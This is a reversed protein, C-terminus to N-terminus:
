SGFERGSRLLPLVLCLMKTNHSVPDWLKDDCNPGM